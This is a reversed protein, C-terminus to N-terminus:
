LMHPDSMSINWVFLVPGPEFLCQYSPADTVQDYHCTIKDFTLFHSGM